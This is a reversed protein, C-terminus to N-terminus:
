KGGVIDLNIHMGGECFYTSAILKGDYYQIGHILSCLIRNYKEEDIIIGNRKLFANNDQLSHKLKEELNFNNSNM